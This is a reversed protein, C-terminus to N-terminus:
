KSVLRYEAKGYENIHIILRDENQTLALTIWVPAWILLIGCSLAGGLV